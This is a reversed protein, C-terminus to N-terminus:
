RESRQSEVVNESLTMSEDEEHDQSHHHSHANEHEHESHQHQPTFIHELSNGMLDIINQDSASQYLNESLESDDEEDHMHQHIHHQEHDHDNHGNDHSPHHEIIEPFDFDELNRIKKALEKDKGLITIVKKLGIYAMSLLFSTSERKARCTTVQNDGFLGALYAQSAEHLTKVAKSDDDCVAKLEPAIENILYKYPIKQVLQSCQKRYIKIEQLAKPGTQIRKKSLRKQVRKSPKAM